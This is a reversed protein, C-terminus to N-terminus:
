DSLQAKAKEWPITKKEQVEIISHMLQEVSKDDSMIELTELMVQYDKRTM